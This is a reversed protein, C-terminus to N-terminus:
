YPRWVSKVDISVPENYLSCRSPGLAVQWNVNVCGPEVHLEQTDHFKQFNFDWFHRWTIIEVSFTPSSASFCQFFYFFIM